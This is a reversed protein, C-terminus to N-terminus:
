NVPKQETARFAELTARMNDGVTAKRNAGNSGGVFQPIDEDQWRKEDLWNAPHQIVKRAWQDSTLWKELGAMLASYELIPIKGWARRAAAKLQRRPWKEWFVAFAADKTEQELRVSAPDPPLCAGPAPPATTHSACAGVGKGVGLGLGLGGVSKHRLAVPKTDCRSACHTVYANLQDKQVPPALIPGYRPTRRSERPLRGPKDSATWHGYRKGNDDWIFLLGKDHFEDIVQELRELSFNKRIAAVKGHIVRLNTLEFSGNADALGYCWAYEPQAWEECAAIKDSAWLADFDLVRKPM